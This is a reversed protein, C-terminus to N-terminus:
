PPLLSLALTVGGGVAVHLVVLCWLALAAQLCSLLRRQGLRSNM